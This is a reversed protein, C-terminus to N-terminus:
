PSQQEIPRFSRIAQLFAKEFTPGGPDGRNYNLHAAFLKGDHEWFIAVVHQTREDPSYTAEDYSSLVANSARSANPFQFAETTPVRSGLARADALAWAEPTTASKARGSVAEHPEVTIAAGGRPITAQVFREGPPAFFYVPTDLGTSVSWGVPVAMTFKYKESIFRRTTGRGEVTGESAAATAVFIGLLAIRSALSM